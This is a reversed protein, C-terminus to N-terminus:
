LLIGANFVLAKWAHPIASLLVCFLKNDLLGVLGEPYGAMWLPDYGWFAGTNSLHAGAHFASYFHASYDGSRIPEDLLARPDVILSAVLLLQLLAPPLPGTAVRKWAGFAQGARALRGGRGGRRRNEGISGG